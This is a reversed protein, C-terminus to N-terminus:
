VYGIECVRAPRCSLELKPKRSAKAFLGRLAISSSRVRASVYSCYRICRDFRFVRLGTTNRNRCLVASPLATCMLTFLESPLTYMCVDLDQREGAWVLLLRRVPLAAPVAM